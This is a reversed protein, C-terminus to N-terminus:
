KGSPDPDKAPDNHKYYIQPYRERYCTPCLSHTFSADTHEGIYVEVQQWYGGDDRIRKCLSCIPLLGKLQRVEELARRLDEVTSALEREVRKRTIAYHISRALLDGRLDTKYLYDQAGKEVARVAMEADDAHTLVIIPLDGANAKVAYLTDLGQSDPLNLDLLVIHPPEAHLRTAAEAVSGVAEIVFLPLRQTGLHARVLEADVLSDEVLLVQITALSMTSRESM